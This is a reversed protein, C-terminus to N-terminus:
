VGLPAMMWPLPTEGWTSTTRLASSSRLISRWVELGSTDSGESKPARKPNLGISSLCSAAARSTSRTARSRSLHDEGELAGAVLRRERHEVGRGAERALPHVALDLQVGLVPADDRVYGRALVQAVEARQDLAGSRAGF